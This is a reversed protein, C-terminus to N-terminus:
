AAANVFAMTEYYDRSTTPRAIMGGDLAGAKLGKLM